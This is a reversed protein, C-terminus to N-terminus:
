LLYTDFAFWPDYKKNKQTILKFKDKNELYLDVIIIQDDKILKDTNLYQEVRNYYIYHWWKLKDINCIFFGGAISCQKAPIENKEKKYLEIQNIYNDDCVQTYYIKDELNEIITPNPWNSIKDHPLNDLPPNGQKCRFYGIDCWGYFKTKFYENKITENVFNIKENWLMNLKWEIKVDIIKNRKEHNKIWKDKYEYTNFTEIEKIILIINDNDNINMDDFFYKSKEDTYIVLYFNNVNDILNKAWKKYTGITFKSNLIYFCTSLTLNISKKIINDPNKNKFLIDKVLKAKEKYIKKSIHVNSTTVQKEHIRYRLLIDKMNYIKGYEKLVRLILEYDEYLSHISPNYNGIKLIKSRRFCFTPHNMLWTENTNKMYTELELNPKSSVSINRQIGNIIKFTVMQAGCLVCEPNNEMFDIQKVIRDEIMIDDSDMRMIIENSCLQVGKNLSYGIGRNGDNEIYVVKVLENKSDFENLLSKLKKTNLEDSGDNIWVLEININGIQNSISELCEEVYEINTNYSCILISVSERNPRNPIREIKDLMLHNYNTFRKEIDSYVPRQTITRPLIMYWKDVAQLRMWHCDIANSNYQGDPDKQLLQLGEKVNQILSDYYHNKVIYGTTTFSNNIKFTDKYETLRVPPRINGALLFVDFDQDMIDKIRDNYWQKRMFQIDDEVIVIYELNKEKAMTLLKLHSMTCGVRGHNEDKIADFRQYKWGMDNLEREVLYKRETREKLNIYYVNEIM